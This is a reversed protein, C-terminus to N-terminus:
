GNISDEKETPKTPAQVEAAPLGVAQRCLAMAEALGPNGPARKEIQSIVAAFAESLGPIQQTGGAIANSAVNTIQKTVAKIANSM